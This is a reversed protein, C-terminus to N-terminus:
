AVTAGEGWRHILRNLESLTADVVEVTVDGMWSQLVDEPAQEVSGLV